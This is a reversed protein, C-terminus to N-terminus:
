VKVTQCLKVEFHYTPKCNKQLQVFMYCYVVSGLMESNSDLMTVAINQYSFRSATGRNNNVRDLFSELIIANATWVAGHIMLVAIVYDSGFIM